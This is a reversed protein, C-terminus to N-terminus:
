LGLPQVVADENARRVLSVREDTGVVPGAAEGNGLPRDSAPELVQRREDDCAAALVAEGRAQPRHAPERLEVRSGARDLLSPVQPLWRGNAPARSRGEGM